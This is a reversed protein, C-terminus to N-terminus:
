TPESLLRTIKLSISTNFQIQHAIVQEETHQEWKVHSATCTFPYPGTHVIWEIDRRDLKIWRTGPPKPIGPIIQELSM